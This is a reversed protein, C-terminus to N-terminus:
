DGSEDHLKNSNNHYKRRNGSFKEAVVTTLSIGIIYILGDFVVNQITMKFFLSSIWTIVIMIFTMFAIARKSSLKGDSDFFLQNSIKNSM